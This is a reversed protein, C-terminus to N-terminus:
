AASARAEASAETAVRKGEPTLKWNTGGGRTRGSPRVLERDRMAEIVRRTSEPSLKPTAKAVSGAAFGKPHELGFALVIPQTRELKAESLTWDKSSANARKTAPKPKGSAELASLLRKLQRERAVSDKVAQEYEARTKREAEILTRAEQITAETFKRAQEALDSLAATTLRPFELIPDHAGNSEPRSQPALTTM